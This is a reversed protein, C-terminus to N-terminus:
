KRELKKIRKNMEELDKLDKISKEMKNIADPSINKIHFESPNWLCGYCIDIPTIKGTAIDGFSMTHYVGCKKCLTHCAENM